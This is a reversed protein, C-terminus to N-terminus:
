EPIGIRNFPFYRFIVKSIIRSYHVPVNWIRNDNSSTRNDGLLFYQDEQLQLENLTGSYPFDIKWNDPIIKQDVTKKYTPQIIDDELFFQNTDPTSIYVRFNNMKITDGPLGIIRKIILDGKNKNLNIKNLTIFKIISNFFSLPFKLRQTYPPNVLVIDGREPKKIGNIKHNSFPLRIGYTLPSVLFKDGKKISPDMSVSLNQYSSILINTVIAYIILTLFIIKLIFITIRNKIKKKYPKYVRHDKIM